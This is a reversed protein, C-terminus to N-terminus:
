NTSDCSGYYEQEATLDFTVQFSTTFDQYDTVVLPCRNLWEQFEEYRQNYIRDHENQLNM